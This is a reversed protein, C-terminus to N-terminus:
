YSDSSPAACSVPLRSARSPNLVFQIFWTSLAVNVDTDCRGSSQHVLLPFLSDLVPNVYLYTLYAFLSPVEFLLDHKSVIPSCLCVRVEDGSPIAATLFGFTLFTLVLAVLALKGGNLNRQRLQRRARENWSSAIDDPSGMSQPERALLGQTVDTHEPRGMSAVPRTHSAFTNYSRTTDGASSPNTPSLSASTPSPTYAPPAELHEDYATRQPHQPTYSHSHVTTPSYPTNAYISSSPQHYAYNSRREPLDGPSNSLAADGQPAKKDTAQQDLSPDRVWINPVRLPLQATTPSSSGFYGDTPSLADVDDAHNSGGDARVRFDPLRGGGGDSTVQQSGERRQNLGSQSTADEADSEGDSDWVSYLNDSYPM